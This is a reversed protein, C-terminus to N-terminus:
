IWMSRGHFKVTAWWSNHVNGAVFKQQNVVCM